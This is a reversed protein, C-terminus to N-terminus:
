ARVRAAVRALFREMWGLDYPPRAVVIFHTVGVSVYEGLRDIARSADEPLFAEWVWARLRAELGAAPVGEAELRRREALLNPNGLRVMSEWM